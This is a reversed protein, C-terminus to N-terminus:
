AGTVAWTGWAQPWMVHIKEEPEVTEVAGTSKFYFTVLAGAISAGGAKAFICAFGVCENGPDTIFQSAFYNENGKPLKSAVYICLNGKAAAPKAASGAPSLASGCQTPTVEEVSGTELNFLLEMGKADILHVQSEGLSAALPISFPINVVPPAPNAYVGSLSWSGTETSGSPLTGGATWPSGQPGEEGNCIEHKSGSGEVELTSGGQSCNPASGSVAVSKGNVGDKGAIGPAGDKGALGQAGAAGAPGQPGQAGPAGAPGKAGKLQKLVSPSIQKTSTILFKKAAYAGGSMAFVLALTMAVNAFTLRKRMASLM